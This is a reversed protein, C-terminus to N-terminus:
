QQEAQHHEGLAEDLSDPPCAACVAEPPSIEKGKAAQPMVDREATDEKERRGEWLDERKM